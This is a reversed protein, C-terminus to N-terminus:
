CVDNLLYKTTDTYRGALKNLTIVSDFLVKTFDVLKNLNYSVRGFFHNFFSRPISASQSRLGKSLITDNFETKTALPVNQDNAYDYSEVGNAIDNTYAAETFAFRAVKNSQLAGTKTSLSTLQENIDSM